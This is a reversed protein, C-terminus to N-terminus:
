GSVTAPERRSVTNPAASKLSALRRSEPRLAWSAFVLALLVLPVVVDSTPDGATAHAVAAGTLDFTMGAYAWEKLIPLRPAAIAGAGLLKWVGLLVLLHEPYGLHRLTDVLEPGRALDALGGLVFAAVVLATTVVYAIKQKNM